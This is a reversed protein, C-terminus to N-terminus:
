EQPPAGGEWHGNTTAPAPSGGEWHGLTTHETSSCEKCPLTDDAPKTTTDTM